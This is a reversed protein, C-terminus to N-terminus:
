AGRGPGAPRGRWPRCHAQRPVQGSGGRRIRAPVQDHQSAATIREILAMVDPVVVPRPSGLDASGAASSPAATWLHWWPLGAKRRSVIGPMLIFALGSTSLVVETWLLWRPGAHGLLNLGGILYVLSLLLWCWVIAPVATVRTGRLREAVLQSLSALAWGAAWVICLWGAIHHYLSAM